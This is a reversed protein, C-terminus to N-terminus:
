CSYAVGLDFKSFFYERIDATKKAKTTIVAKKDLGWNCVRYYFDKYSYIIYIHTKFGTNKRRRRPFSTNLSRTIM